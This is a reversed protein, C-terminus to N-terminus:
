GEATRGVASLEEDAVACVTNQLEDLFESKRMQGEELDRAEDEVILGPMLFTEPAATEETAARAPVESTQAQAPSKQVMGGSGETGIIDERRGVPVFGTATFQYIFEDAIVYHETGCRDPHAAINRMDDANPEQQGEASTNPHTHITGLLVENPGLRRGPPLCIPATMPQGPLGVPGERSILDMTNRQTNLVATVTYERLNLLDSRSRRWMNAMVERMGPRDILRLPQGPTTVPQVAGQAQTGGCRQLRLGSRQLPITRKRNEASGYRIEGQLSLIAGVASQDADEELVHYETAGQGIQKHCQSTKGQQIVHALEHAILAEGVLTGPKYESAGFAVHQGVTFARANFRNSLSAATTDTHTRVHSFDMGFASEMRSRVGGEFPRGEGLETQIALPDDAGKTGSERAKFFISGIWSIVGGIGGLLGMGLMGMSLGEPIGTIEGTRAWSEVSRRVRAAIIPIYDRATTAHATEPAYRRIARELHLRDQRSYYGFWYDLYPCDETTRGTGVMAAEAERTVETRLQALFDSRRMQGSGVEAALDELILRSSYTEESVVSEQASGTAADTTGSEPVPSPVAAETSSETSEAEPCTPCSISGETEDKPSRQVMLQSRLLPRPQQVRDTRAPIRSFDYGLRPESFSVSVSAFLREPLTLLEPPQAERRQLSVAEKSVVQPSNARQPQALALESM